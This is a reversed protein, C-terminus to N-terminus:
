DKKTPPMAATLDSLNPPLRFAFIVYRNGKVEFEGVGTMGLGFLHADLSHPNSRSVFGVGLEFRGALDRKQAEVLRRLLGRGRYDRDICVPGYVYSKYSALANGEFRVVDYSEFMKALVPSEHKFDNRFACLYGALVGSELAIMIGLDEAMKTVQERTFEASLFGERRQHDSLNAVYNAAQLKLIASYDEPKARRFQGGTLSKVKPV